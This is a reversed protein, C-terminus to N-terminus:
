GASRIYRGNKFIKTMEAIDVIDLSALTKGKAMALTWRKQCTIRSAMTDFTREKGGITLISKGSQVIKSQEINGM